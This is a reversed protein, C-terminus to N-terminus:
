PKWEQLSRENGLILLDCPERLEEFNLNDPIENRRNIAYEYSDKKSAINFIKSRLEELDSDDFRNDYFCKLAGREDHLLRALKDIRTRNHVSTLKDTVSALQILASRAVADNPYKYAIYIQLDDRLGNSDDDLDRPKLPMAKIFDPFTDFNPPTLTEVSSLQKINKDRVQFNGSTKLLVYSGIALAAAGIVLSSLSFILKVISPGRKPTRTKKM